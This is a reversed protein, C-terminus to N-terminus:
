TALVGGKGILAEVSVTKSVGKAAEAKAEEYAAIPTTDDYEIVSHGNLKDFEANFVVHTHRYVPDGQFTRVGDKERNLRPNQDDFQATFTDYVRIRAGDIKTGKPYEGAIETKANFMARMIVKSEWGLQKAEFETVDANSPLDDIVQAVYLMVYEPNSTVISDVITLLKDNLKDGLLAILEENTLNRNLEDM